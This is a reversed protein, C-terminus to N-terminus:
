FAWRAKISATQNNFNNRGEVDYSATIETGNSLAHVLGLSVHGIWPDREIGATVFSSAPAGAYASTIGADENITDYGVGLKATLTTNNDLRHTLKGDISLVLAEVDRGSVDLNLLGAGSENYSKEKIWTYDARLSPTIKTKGNISYARGLGIGAHATYTDFKADAVSNTFAITRSSRNKNLGADFQFNLETDQAVSYSGYLILQYADINLDHPAIESNSDVNSNAYAFAAGLRLKDYRASDVGFALGWTEADFGSVGNDDDQDAWSGFPKIWFRKDGLFEDGSSLGLNSEIRAQIVNNIGSMVNSAALVSSGALIPMTQTAADSVEQSESLGADTFLSLLDPTADIVAAGSYVPGNGVAVASDLVILGGVNDDIAEQIDSGFIYYYTFTISDGTILTPTYYALGITNDGDGDDTGTFYTAPDTSWDSSIGTNVNSSADSYLGIVYKSALAEAYVLNTAAVSGSGRFNNTSSSDGPAVQADPDTYRAFYIETLDVAATITSTITIRKDDSNFGVVNVIDYLKSGSTYSGTWTVGQYTGSSSDALTGTLGSTISGTNNSSATTTSGSATSTISFGEFPTGPTLYDYSDNFTGTGTDDYQIGPLTSGGSGLTGLDNTGIKIYNGELTIPAAVASMCNLILSASFLQFAIRSLFSTFNRTVVETIM